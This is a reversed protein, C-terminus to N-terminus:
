RALRPTYLRVALREVRGTLYDGRDDRGEVGAGLSGEGTTVPRITLIIVVREGKPLTGQWRLVGERRSSIPSLSGGLGSLTPGQVKQVVFGAEPLAIQVEAESLNITPTFEYVLGIDRGLTLRDTLYLHAQILDPDRPTIGVAGSISGPTKIWNNKPPERGVWAEQDEVLVYLSNGGGSKGGFMDALGSGFVTLYGNQVVQAQAVIQRTEYAKLSGHWELTGGM